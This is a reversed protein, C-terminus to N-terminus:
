SETSVRIETNTEGGEGGGGGGGTLKTVATACLIAWDNQWFHLHCTVALCANVRCIHSQMFHCSM